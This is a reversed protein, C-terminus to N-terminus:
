VDLRQLQVGVDVILVCVDDALATIESSNVNLAIGSWPWDSYDQVMDLLASFFCCMVSNYRLRQAPPHKLKAVVQRVTFDAAHPGNLGM